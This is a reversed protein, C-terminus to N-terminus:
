LTNMLYPSLSHPGLAPREALSILLTRSVFYPLVTFTLRGSESALLAAPVSNMIASLRNRWFFGASAAASGRM